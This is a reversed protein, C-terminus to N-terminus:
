MEFLKDLKNSIDMTLLSGLTADRLRDLFEEGLGKEISEYFYDVSGIKTVKFTLDFYTSYIQALLNALEENPKFKIKQFGKKLTTYNLNTYLKKGGLKDLQKQTIRRIIEKRFIRLNSLRETREPEKYENLISKRYELIYLLFSFNMFGFATGFPPSFNDGCLYLFVWKDFGLLDKRIEDKSLLKVIKDELQTKGLCNEVEMKMIFSAPSLSSINYLLIKVLKKMNVDYLINKKKSEGSIRDILGIENFVLGDFFSKTNKMFGSNESGKIKPIDTVIEETKKIINTETEKKISKKYKLQLNEKNLSSGKKWNIPYLKVNCSPCKKKSDKRPKKGLNFDCKKCVWYTKKKTKMEVAGSISIFVDTKTKPGDILPFLFQNFYNQYREQKLLLDDLKVCYKPTDILM